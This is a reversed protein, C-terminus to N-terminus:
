SERRLLRGQLGLPSGCLLFLTHVERARVRRDLMCRLCWVRWRVTTCAGCAGRAGGRPRAYVALVVRAVACDHMCRLCWVRRRVTSCAGCAGGCRRAYVALVVRAVACDHMCRM